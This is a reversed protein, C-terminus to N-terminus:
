DHNKIRGRDRKKASNLNKQTKRRQNSSRTPKTKKRLKPPYAVELIMAKLKDACDERNRIQDRYRDSMIVMAADAALNSGFRALFRFRVDPPLTTNKFPYWRLVAKTNTKNVNQGGPGSSRAFSFELESYPIKIESTVILM